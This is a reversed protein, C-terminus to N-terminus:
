RAPTCPSDRYCCSNSRLAPDVIPSVSRPDPWTMPSPQLLVLAAPAPIEHGRSDPKGSHIQPDISIKEKM